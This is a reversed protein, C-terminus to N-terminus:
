GIRVVNPASRHRSKEKHIAIAMCQGLIAFYRHSQVTPRVLKTRGDTDSPELALWGEQRLRHLLRGLANLSLDLPSHPSEHVQRLAFLVPLREHQTWLVALAELMATASLGLPPFGQAQLSHVSLAAFTQYVRAASKPTLAKRMVEHSTFFEDM